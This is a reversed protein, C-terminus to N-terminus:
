EGCNGRKVVVLAGSCLHPLAMIMLSNNTNPVTTTIITIPLQIHIFVLLHSSLKFNEALPVDSESGAGM